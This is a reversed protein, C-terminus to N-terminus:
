KIRVPLGCVVRVVEEAQAALVCGARGAAERWSREEKEMPVIGSGIENLVFIGDPYTQALGAAADAPEKGAALLARVWEELHIACRKTKLPLTDEEASIGACDFIDGDALGFRKKVYETKGACAGGVVLIM